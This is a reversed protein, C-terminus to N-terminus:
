KSNVTLSYELKEIKNKKNVAECIYKGENAKRVNRIELTSQLTYKSKYHSLRVNGTKLDLFM